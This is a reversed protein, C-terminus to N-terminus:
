TGTSGGGNGQGSAATTTEVTAAAAEEDGPPAAVAVPNASQWINEFATRIPLLEVRRATWSVLSSM